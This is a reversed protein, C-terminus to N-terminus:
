GGAVPPDGRLYQESTKLMSETHESLAVRKERNMQLNMGVLLNCRAIAAAFDDFYDEHEIIGLIGAKDLEDRVRENAECLIIRIGRAELNLIAEELTQLGVIDMFPVRHLRIVLIRPDPHTQALTQEFNEVAGFFFPGDIAYVLVGPPLATLGQYTLEMELEKEAIQKVEMSSAM